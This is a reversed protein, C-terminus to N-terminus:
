HCPRLRCITLTAKISADTGSGPLPTNETQPGTSSSTTTTLLTTGKCQQQWHQYRLM